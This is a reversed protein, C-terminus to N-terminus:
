RFAMSVFSSEGEGQCVVYCWRYIGQNKVFSAICSAGSDVKTWSKGALEDSVGEMAKGPAAPYWFGLVNGETSVWAERDSLDILESDFLEPIENSENGLVSKWLGDPFSDLKDGSVFGGVSM